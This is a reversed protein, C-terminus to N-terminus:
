KYLRNFEALDERAQILQQYPQTLSEAITNFTNLESGIIGRLKEPTSRITNELANKESTLQTDIKQIEAPDIRKSPDFRFARAVHAKWALLASLLAPGFGPVELNSNIDAATEVGYAQLKLIRGSKIGAINARSIYFRDLYEDMQIQEHRKKLDELMRQRRPQLQNYLAWCKQAERIVNQCNTSATSKHRELIQNVDHIKRQADRYQAEIEFKVNRRATERESLTFFNRIGSLFGTSENLNDPFFRPKPKSLRLSAEAPIRFASTQFNNLSSIIGSLTSIDLSFGHQTDLLFFNIKHQQYISCFPCGGPRSSYHEHSANIKCQILQDLMGKISRGWVEPPPRNEPAGRFATDFLRAIEPTVTDIGLTKPPPKVGYSGAASSYAYLRKKVCEGPEDPGGVGFFPHRGMFLLQFIFIALTFNDQHPTRIEREFDTGHLEPALYEPVGVTCRYVENGHNIQFSDCDLFRVRGDKNVLVNKQNFDGVIAGAAHIGSLAACLNYAVTLLFRYKADPFNQLRSKPHFSEHIEKGAGRPMFITFKPTDALDVPWATHAFLQPNAREMMIELKRARQREVAEHYVKAVLSSDTEVEFVAGENGAGLKGGLRHNRGKRTAIHM